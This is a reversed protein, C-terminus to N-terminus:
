LVKIQILHSPLVLVDRCKVHCAVKESTDECFSVRIGLFNEEWAPRWRSDSLRGKSLRGVLKGVTIVAYQRPSRPWCCSKTHSSKTLYSLEKCPLPRSPKFLYIELPRQTSEITLWEIIWSIMKTNHWDEKSVNQLRFITTKNLIRPYVILHTIIEWKNLSYLNRFSHFLPPAM